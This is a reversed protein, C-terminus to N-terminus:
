KVSLYWIRCDIGAKDYIGEKLSTWEVSVDNQHYLNKDYFRIARFNDKLVGWYILKIGLEEHGIRIIEKMALGAYGKGMACTRVAIAFEADNETIHKLSVTGMYLDNEDVIAMHINNIDSTCTKIFEECNQITKNTFKDAQLGSLVNKDHMWELMYPADKLLLKRLKM